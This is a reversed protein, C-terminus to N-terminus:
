AKFRFPTAADRLFPLAADKDSVLIQSAPLPWDIKLDPDDWRIGGEAAKNYFGDVKYAVLTNPELTLYAHAFGVPILVQAGEQADLRVGCWRGFTPSGERVDVAVDYIAGTIVRVLKAQPDPALQFHLGRLTGATVSLAENDQVFALDIGLEAFARSHYTEVFYGRPDAFRRPRILLCDALSLPECTFPVDAEKRHAGEDTGLAHRPSANPCGFGRAEWLTLADGPEPVREENSV